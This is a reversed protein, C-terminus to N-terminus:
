RTSKEFEPVTLVLEKRGTAKDIKSLFQHGEKETLYRPNPVCGYPCKMTEVIGWLRCIAPRIEYVSCKGDKLLSCQFDKDVTPTSNSSESIRRFEDPSMGIPGCSSQCSGKCKITPLTEYLDDM